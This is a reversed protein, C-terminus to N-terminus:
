EYYDKVDEFTNDAGKLMYYLFTPKIEFFILSKFNNFNSCKNLLKLLILKMRWLQKLSINFDKSLSTYSNILTNFANTRLEPYICLDYFREILYNIMDDNISHYNNTNRMLSSKRLRYYYLCNDIKKIKNSQLICKYRFFEDDIIKGKFSNGLVVTSRFLKNHILSCSWNELYLKMYQIMDYVGESITELKQFGNRCFAYEDCQVIDVDYIADIMTEFCRLDLYDDSDVFYIYEGKVLELGKNRAQAAGSNQIHILEIREDKVLYEDCIKESGDTSGDDIIIIQLDRYTQNIISNLCEALYHFVNYVPIIVTIM